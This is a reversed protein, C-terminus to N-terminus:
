SRQGEIGHRFQEPDRARGHQRRNGQCVGQDGSDGYSTEGEQNARKQTLIARASEPIVHPFGTLAERQSAMASPVSSAPGTGSGMHDAHGPAKRHSGQGESALPLLTKNAQFGLLIHVHGRISLRPPETHGSSRESM